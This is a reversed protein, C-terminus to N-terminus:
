PGSAPKPQRRLLHYLIEHQMPYLPLLDARYLRGAYQRMLRRAARLVDRDWGLRLEMLDAIVATQGPVGNYGGTIDLLLTFQAQWAELEGYISLATLPGQKLHQVEHVLLSLAYTSDAPNNLYRPSLDIRHGLSWRAGSSQKRVGVHVKRECIYRENASGTAGSRRLEDLLRAVLAKRDLM